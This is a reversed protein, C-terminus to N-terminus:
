RRLITVLMIFTHNCGRIMMDCHSQIRLTLYTFSLTRMRRMSKLAWFASGFGTMNSGLEMLRLPVRMLKLEVPLMGATFMDVAHDKTALM